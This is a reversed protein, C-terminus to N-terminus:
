ETAAIAPSESIEKENGVGKPPKVIPFRVLFASGKGPKSRIIRIDGDMRSIIKKAMALGIGTGLYDQRNHLRKFLDFVYQHFETEIGIGNDTILFQHFRPTAEYHIEVKPEPSENYLFGNELLHKFLMYILRENGYVTPLENYFLRGDKEKIIDALNASLRKALLEMSFAHLEEKEQKDINNYLLLNNILLHLQKGNQIIYHFYEELKPKDHIERLALNSFSVINRVPEKIDHSLLHNIQRLEEHVQHLPASRELRLQMKREKTVDQAIFIQKRDSASLHIQMRVWRYRGDVSKIRLEVPSPQSGSQHLTQQAYAADEEHFLSVIDSGKIKEVSFGLAKQFAPNVTEIVGYLSSIAILDTSLEFVKLLCDM